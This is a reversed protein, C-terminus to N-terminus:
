HQPLSSANKRATGHQTGFLWLSGAKKHRLRIVYLKALFSKIRDEAQHLEPFVFVHHIDDRERLKLKKPLAVQYEYNGRFSQERVQPVIDGILPYSELPTRSYTLLLIDQEFIERKRLLPEIENMLANPILSPFDRQAFYDVIDISSSIATEPPPRILAPIAGSSNTNLYELPLNGNEDLVVEIQIIHATANPHASKGIEICFRAALSALSHPHHYLLLSPSGLKITKEINM